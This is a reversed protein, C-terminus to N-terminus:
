MTMNDPQSNANCHLFAVSSRLATLYQMRSSNFASHASIHLAHSPSPPPLSASQLFLTRAMGCRLTIPPGAYSRQCMRRLTSTNPAHTWHWMMPVAWILAGATLCAVTDDGDCRSLMMASSQHCASLMCYVFTHTSWLLLGNTDLGIRPVCFLHFYTLKQM